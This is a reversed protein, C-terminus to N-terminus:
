AGPYVTIRTSSGVWLGFALLHLWRLGIDMWAASNTLLGIALTSILGITRLRMITEQITVFAGIDYPFLNDIM